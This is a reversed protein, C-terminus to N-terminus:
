APRSGATNIRYQVPRCALWQVPKTSAGHRYLEYTHPGTASTTSAVAREISVHEPVARPLAAPAATAAALAVGLSALLARRLLPVM